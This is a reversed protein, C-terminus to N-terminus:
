SEIYKMLFELAANEAPGGCKRVILAHYDIWRKLEPDRNIRYRTAHVTADIISNFGRNIPYVCVPGTAEHEIVLDVKEMEPTRHVVEASFVIWAEADKLRWVDIGNVTEPVFADPVPDEFATRVYMVPDHVINAVLYRYKAINSSTHSGSFLIASFRGGRCHIGIPAANSQTTAIVESIGENLIGM